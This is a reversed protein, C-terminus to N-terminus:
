VAGAFPGMKHNSSGDLYAALKDAVARVYPMSTMDVHDGPVVHVEVGSMACSDWGMSLDLHFIRGAM